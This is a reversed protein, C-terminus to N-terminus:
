FSGGRGSSANPQVSATEPSGPRKKSLAANKKGPQTSTKSRTNQRLTSACHQDLEVACITKFGAADVGIDLGGAWAFLSLALRKMSASGLAMGSPAILFSRM